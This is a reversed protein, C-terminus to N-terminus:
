SGSLEAALALTDARSARAALLPRYRTLLRAAGFAAVAMLRGDAFYGLVSGRVPGGATGSGHLPEATEALEPWGALQIRLGFQDSWFYPPAAAPRPLGLIDQAVVAAQETASTWHENRRYCGGTQSKWAAVDGVAWLRSAGLLRGSEDCRVGGGSDAIWPLDPTGGIAALVVDATAKTGNGLLVTHDDVFGTVPTGCRLDVGAETLLRASLAGGPEGLVRLLPLPQAEVVTVSVGLGCAASAVEAGVFGAGLVLLSRASRLAARLRVADDLSRLTHVGAPQDPFGRARLGTALVVADGQVRSGDALGVETGDLSTAAVGLRCSLGQDDLRERTALTTADPECAGTLVQKSLPPRDYPLHTEAGLLTIRGRHGGARLREATRLGGLGAGVVVVHGDDTGAM